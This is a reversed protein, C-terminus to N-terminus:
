MGVEDTIGTISRIGRSFMEGLESAENFTEPIEAQGVIYDEIEKAKTVVDKTASGTGLLDAATQVAFKRIEIKSKM